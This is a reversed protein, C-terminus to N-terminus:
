TGNSSTRRPKRSGPSRRENEAFELSTGVVVRDRVVAADRLVGRPGVRLRQRPVLLEGAVKGEVRTPDVGAEEVIFLDLGLRAVEVTAPDRAVDSARELASGARGAPLPQRQPVCRSRKARRSAGGQTCGAVVVRAEWLLTVRHRGRASPGRLVVRRHFTAVSVACRL